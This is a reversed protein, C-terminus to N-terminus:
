GVLVVDRLGPVEDMLLGHIGESFDQGAMMCGACAGIFTVYAINHEDVGLLEVDGGDHQIYPRIKNLVEDVAAEVEDRESRTLLQEEPKVERPAHKVESNEAPQATETTTEEEHNLTESNKTESM